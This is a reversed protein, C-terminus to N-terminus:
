PAVTPLPTGSADCIEGAASGTCTNFPGVVVPKTGWTDFWAVNEQVPLIQVSKGIIQSAPLKITITAQSNPAIGPIGARALDNDVIKGNADVSHAGLNVPYPPISALTVTGHNTLSLKVDVFKRDSSLTPKGELTMQVNVQDATLRQGAAAAPTGSTTAASTTAADQDHGSGCAALGLASAIAVTALTTRLIQM